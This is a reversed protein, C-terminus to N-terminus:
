TVGRNATALQGLFGLNYGYFEASSAGLVSDDANAQTLAGTPSQGGFAYVASVGLASLLLGSNGATGFPGIGVTAYGLFGAATSGDIEITGTGPISGSTLTASGRIILVGGASANQLIFGVALDDTGQGD